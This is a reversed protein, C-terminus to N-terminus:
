SNAAGERNWKRQMEVPSRVMHFGLFIRGEDLCAERNKGNRMARFLCSRKIEPVAGRGPRTERGDGVGSSFRAAHPRFIRPPLSVHRPAPCQNPHSRFRARVCPFTPSSIRSVFGSKLLCQAPFVDTKRAFQRPAGGKRETRALTEAGGLDCGPVGVRKEGWCMRRGCAM